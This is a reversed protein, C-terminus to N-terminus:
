RQGGNERCQEEVCKPMTERDARVARSGVPVDLLWGKLFCFIFVTLNKAFCVVRQGVSTRKFHEFM